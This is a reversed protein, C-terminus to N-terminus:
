WRAERLKQTSYINQSGQAIPGIIQNVFYNVNAIFKKPVYIIDEPQLLINERVSPKLIAQNLNLRKGQPNLFGGRILIVSSLVADQTFGGALAIAELVTSQGSITYVGPFDVEGLVIIKKGAIKRVSVSVEPELIYEKLRQTIEADLQTLTLGAALVDGVLPFSIKGDPRVIVEEKLDEQWVSIYLIDGEGIIYEATREVALKEKAPVETKAAPMSIKEPTPLAVTAQRYKEEVEKKTEAIEGQSRNIIFLAKKFEQQAEKYRGEHYYRRGREYYADADESVDQAFVPTISLLFAINLSLFIIARRM